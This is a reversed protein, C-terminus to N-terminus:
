ASFLKVVSDAGCSAFWPHRPHFKVSFVSESSKSMHSSFEQVCANTALDWWRLSADHALTLTQHLPKGGSVLTTGAANIDLSSLPGVHAIMSHSCEGSNVDFVRIYRDEHGSIAAPLTSHALLCNLQTEPTGDPMLRVYTQDSKFRVVARGTEIDVLHILSNRYGVLLKGPDHPSFDVAVPVPPRRKGGTLSADESVSAFTLSRVTQHTATSWLKVAGDAGWSALLQNDPRLRIGWVIDKHEALTALLLHPELLQTAILAQTGISGQLRRGESPFKWTKITADFSASYAVLQDSDVAVCTVPGRHGRYVYSPEYEHRTPRYTLRIRRRSPSLDWLKVTGDQSGSVLILERRHFDISRVSDLHSGLEIKVRAFNVKKADIQAELDSSTDRTGKQSREGLFLNASGMPRSVETTQSAEEDVSFRVDTLSGSPETPDQSAKSALLLADPNSPELPDDALSFLPSHVFALPTGELDESKRGLAKFISSLKGLTAASLSNADNQFFNDSPLSTKGKELAAPEPQLLQAAQSEAPGMDDLLEGAHGEPFIITIRKKRKEEELHGFSKADSTARGRTGDAARESASVTLATTAAPRKLIEPPQPCPSYGQPPNGNTDVPLRSPTAMGGRHPSDSRSVPSGRSLEEVLSPEAEASSGSRGDTAQPSHSASALTWDPVVNLEELCRACGNFVHRTPARNKLGFISSNTSAKSLLPLKANNPTPALNSLPSRQRSDPARGSLFKEREQRLSFELMKIRKVLDVRTRDSARKEGELIALKSKLEAREIGWENREREANRWETQLFRLVGPLTYEPASLTPERIPESPHTPAGPNYLQSLRSMKLPTPESMLLPTLEAVFEENSIFGLSHQGLHNVGNFPPYNVRSGKFAEGKAITDGISYGGKRM